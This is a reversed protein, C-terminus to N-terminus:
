EAEFHELPTDAACGVQIAAIGPGAGTHPLPQYVRLHCFSSEEPGQSTQVKVFYNTGAVM